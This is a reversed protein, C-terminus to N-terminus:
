AEGKGPQEVHGADVAAGVFDAMSGLLAEVGADSAFRLLESVRAEHDDAAAVGSMASRAGSGKSVDIM